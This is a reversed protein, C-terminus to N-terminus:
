ADRRAPQCTPCSTTGRGVVKSRVLVTGCRRCPEGAHGYCELLDQTRGAGALSRYDRLSAGGAAVSVRAKSGPGPPKGTGGM